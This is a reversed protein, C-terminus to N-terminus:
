GSAPQAHGEVVIPLTPATAGPGPERTLAVVIGAETSGVSSTLTGTGSGPVVFSGAPLPKGDAGILWAEYVQNGTTPALDHMAIVLRGAPDVAALGSPGTGTTDKLLALQGGSSSAADLVAVVGDRYAALDAVQARLQLNWAGLVAIAVVAAVATLGWAPRRFLEVLVAPRRRARPLPAPTPAPIPAPHLVAEAAAAAATEAREAEVGALDARAAALIRPGLSSPPEPCSALHERVRATEAPELSGLVFGSALEAVEGCTMASGHLDAM